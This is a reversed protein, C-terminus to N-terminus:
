QWHTSSNKIISNNIKKLRSFNENKKERSNFSYIMFTYLIKKRECVYMMYEYTIAPPSSIFFVYFFLHFNNFFQLFTERKIEDIYENERVFVCVYVNIIIEKATDM